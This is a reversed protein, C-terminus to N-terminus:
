YSVFPIFGFVYRYKLTDFSFFFVIFKPSIHLVVDKAFDSM